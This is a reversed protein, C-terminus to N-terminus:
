NLYTPIYQSQSPQNLKEFELKNREARRIESEIRLAIQIHRKSRIRRAKFGKKLRGRKQVVAGIPSHLSWQVFWIPEVLNWLDGELLHDTGVVVFWRRRLKKGM